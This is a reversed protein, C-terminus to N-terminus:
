SPINERGPRFIASPLLVIRHKLAGLITAPIFVLNAIYHLVGIQLTQRFGLGLQREDYLARWAFVGVLVASLATLWSSGALLAILMLGFFLHAIHFDTVFLCILWPFHEFEIDFTIDRKKASVWYLYFGKIGTKSYPYGVHYGWGWMQKVFASFSKRAKHRLECGQERLAVWNDSQAVRFCIDVDESKAAKPDYSGVDQACQKRISLNNNSFHFFAMKYPKFHGRSYDITVNTSKGINHIAGPLEVIM